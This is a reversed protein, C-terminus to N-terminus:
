QSNQKENLNFAGGATAAATPGPCFSRSIISPAPAAMLSNAIEIKRMRRHNLFYDMESCIQSQVVWLVCGLRPVYMRM